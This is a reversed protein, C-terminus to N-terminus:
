RRGGVPVFEGIMRRVILSQVADLVRVAERGATVSYGFEALENQEAGGQVLADLTALARQLSRVYDIPKGPSRSTTHGDRFEIWEVNGEPDGHLTMRASSEAGGQHHFRIRIEGNLEWADLAVETVLGLVPVFQSLVHPGLDWLVGAQHRWASNDFPGGPILAGTLWEAHAGTWSFSVMQGLWAARDPDFLRTTFVTSSVGADQVETALDTADELTLGIPKELLLHKERRAARIALDRQIPPPVSFAVAAVSGLLEDFSAFSRVGASQAILDRDAENRGWIGVFDVDDAGALAPAHVQKAWYGTGVLGMSLSM